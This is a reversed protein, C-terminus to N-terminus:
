EPSEEPRSQKREKLYPSIAQLFQHTSVPRTIFRDAGLALGAQQLSSDKSPCVFVFPINRLEEDAKVERLLDLGNGDVMEHSSLILDPLSKHALFLGLSISTAPSVECDLPGLVSRALDTTARSNGIVLVRISM